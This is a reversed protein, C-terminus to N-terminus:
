AAESVMEAPISNCGLWGYREHYTHCQAARMAGWGHRAAHADRAALTPHQLVDMGNKDGPMPRNHHLHGTHAHRKKTRGWMEPFESAFLMPLQEMKKLHGHHFAVMNVGFEFAYYPFPSTEVTIRPEQEYLAAFMQRLWVSSAPDHNGECILLHVRDHKALAEDVIRRMLRIATGVSKDFRTDRDLVNGSAPTVPLQGDSHLLDGLFTVLATGAQQAGQMMAHFASLAVRESIDTDWDAGTERWWSRMDLHLDTFIYGNCLDSQTSAPPELPAVRPLDQSLAAAAAKLAEERAQEDPSMRKWVREVTQGRQQVTVKGTVFGEPNPIELGNEPAWGAAAAKKRVLAIAENVAYQRVGFHRAAARQGGHDRIARLYDAQRETAYPLLGDIEEPTM